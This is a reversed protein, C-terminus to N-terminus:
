AHVPRMVHRARSYRPGAVFHPDASSHSETNDQLIVQRGIQMIEPDTTMTGNHDARRQEVASDLKGAAISPKRADTATAPDPDIGAERLTPALLTFAQQLDFQRDAESTDGAIIRGQASKLDLLKPLPIEGICDALRLNKFAERDTHRLGRLNFYTDSNEKTAPPGAAGLSVTQLANDVTAFVRPHGKQLETPGHTRRKALFLILAEPLAFLAFL